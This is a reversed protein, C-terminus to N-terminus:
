RRSHGYRYPHAPRHWYGRNWVWRGGLWFWAGGVWVYDPGPAVVITEPLPAPPPPGAVGAVQASPIQTPTNIMFDIIRESVGANKLDIIDATTLYYVTRSNRIQSIVLDDSIGAKALSKVDVVTLPQGQEVRQMTQPAQARLQAEHAQDMGHGILGGVIAGVAGGVLAGPGPHRAMSGVIAGTAGGALAGSATYDPRGQPSMCGAVSIGAVVVVLLYASRKM